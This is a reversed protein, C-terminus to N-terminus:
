ADTSIGNAKSMVKTAIIALAAIALATLLATVVVAETSYGGENREILEHRAKLWQRLHAIAILEPYLM